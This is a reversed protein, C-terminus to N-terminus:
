FIKIGLGIEGTFVGGGSYWGYGLGAKFDILGGSHWRYGFMGILMTESYYNGYSDEYQYGDTAFGFSVYVSSEESTNNSHLSIQGCYTNVLEGTLPSSNPMWGGGISVKNMFLEGGVVGNIWSYGGRVFLHTYDQAEITNLSLVLILLLFLKKM